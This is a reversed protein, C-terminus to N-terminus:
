PPTSKLSIKPFDIRGDEGRPPDELDLTTATFMEGAGECDSGTLIPTHAYIFGREQFFKHIGFAAASRVRFAASFTNARPRLHAITRM